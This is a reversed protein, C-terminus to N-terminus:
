TGHHLRWTVLSLDLEEGDAWVRGIGTIPGECLAVALNAFYRYDTRTAGVGGPAGKGGGGPNDTVVEEEIDTAWIVQGGLRSTGFLRPIPAGETSTTVKLDGLRPGSVSRREGASALLIQDIYSGALAGIQSGIAAGSLAAGLLSIGAPLLAGGLAAGAVTLALTAM